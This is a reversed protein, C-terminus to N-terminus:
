KEKLNLVDFAALALWLIALDATDALTRSTLQEVRRMRYIVTQRHVHLAEACRQWSRQSNLFVELSELLVTGHAKDYDLIPGLVSTVLAQAEEPSHLGALPAADEFSIFPRDRNTGALAWIAERM